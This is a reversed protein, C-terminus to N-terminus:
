ISKKPKVEEEDEELIKSGHIVVSQKSKQKDFEIALEYTTDTGEQM